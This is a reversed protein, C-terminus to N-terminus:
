KERISLVEAHEDGLTLPEPRERSLVDLVITWLQDV